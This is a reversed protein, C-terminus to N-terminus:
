QVVWESSPIFAEMIIEFYVYLLIFEQVIAVFTANRRSVYIFHSLFYIDLIFM